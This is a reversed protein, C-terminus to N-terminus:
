FLRYSFTVSANPYVKFKSITNVMDGVKGPVDHLDHIMDVHNKLLEEVYERDGTEENYRVIDGYYYWEEPYEKRNPYYPGIGSLNGNEDFHLESTDIKYVNDVYVCPAGCLFLIGADVNLNWKKNKSLHTNYGFGLYPRFKNAKMEARVTADKGPVMMAKTGDDFTGLRFGALGYKFFRDTSPDNNERRTWNFDGLPLGDNLCYRKYIDNYANIAELIITESEMNCADAVDSPGVFFGATFSWHKNDKFPLVDVLFKFQHVNPSFGMTVYDRFEVGSFKNFLAQYEENGPKDLDINFEALKENINDFKSQLNSISGDRTEINFDSHFNFRPIYNYGARVRVYDGIPMAVDIGFGVTGVNVGVDMHNLIGKDALRSFFTAKSADKEQAWAGAMMSLAFLLVGFKKM